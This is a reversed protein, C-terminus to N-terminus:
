GKSLRLVMAGVLTLFTALLKALDLRENLKIVGILLAFVISVERLATVLAIPTHLFAYVVLAYACFSAGGGVAMVRWDRALGTLAGPWWASVVGAYALANLAAMWGFFGLATGSLRVGLGDNLSYLAIFTGAAAALLAARRNRLGSAQRVLGLSVVGCVILGVGLVQALDFHVGLIAVSVLAVLVPALGRAIPYIQTLDGVRYAAILFLQYGLHLAVGAILYPWSAAHPLPMFLLVVAGFLGQGIVVAAMARTKNQGGKVLGNWGAHLLAALLVIGFISWSVVRGKVARGSQSM